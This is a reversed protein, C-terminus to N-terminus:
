VNKHHMRLGGIPSWFCLIDDGQHVTFEFGAGKGYNIADQLTDLEQNAYYGFNVFWVKFPQTDESMPYIKRETM